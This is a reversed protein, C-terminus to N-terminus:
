KVELRWGIEQGNLILPKSLVITYEQGEHKVSDKVKFEPIDRGSYRYTMVISSNPATESSDNGVRSFLTARNFWCHNIEVTVIEANGWDDEEGRKEYSITHCFAKKPPLRYYTM